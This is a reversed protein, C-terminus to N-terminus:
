GHLAVTERGQVYSRSKFNPTQLHVCDAWWHSTYSNGAQLCVHIMLQLSICLALIGLVVILATGPPLIHNALSYIRVSFCLFYMNLVWQYILEWGWTKQTVGEKRRELQASRHYRGLSGRTVVKNALFMLFVRRSSLTRPSSPM